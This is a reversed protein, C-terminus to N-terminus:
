EIESDDDEFEVDDDEFEDDEDDDEFEDDEDDEDDEVEFDEEDDEDDDEEDEFEFDTAEVCHQLYTEFVDLLNSDFQGAFVLFQTLVKKQTRKTWGCANAVKALADEFGIASTDNPM